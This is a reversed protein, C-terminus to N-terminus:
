IRRITPQPAIGLLPETKGICHAELYHSALFDILSECQVM